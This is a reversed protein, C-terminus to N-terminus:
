RSRNRGLSELVAVARELTELDEQGLMVLEEAIHELRKRRATDM